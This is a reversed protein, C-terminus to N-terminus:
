KNPSGVFNKNETNKHVMSIVKNDHQWKNFFVNQNM